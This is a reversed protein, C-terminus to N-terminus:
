TEGDKLIYYEGGFNRFYKLNSKKGLWLEHSTKNTEPRLFVRSSTYCTINIAEVWFYIPTDHMHLMVQAVEQFVYNKMEVVGNKNLLKLPHFNM